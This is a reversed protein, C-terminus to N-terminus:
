PFVIITIPTETLLADALGLSAGGLGNMGTISAATITIVTTSTRIAQIISFGVTDVISNAAGIFIQTKNATFVAGGATLTYLGASTRASTITQGLLNQGTTVTPANTGTQTLTARYVKYGQGLGQVFATTALATTNTNAAATAATCNTLIGSAPTGLAPAVFTKNAMTQAKTKFTFEDDVNAFDPLTLTAAGVTQAALSVTVVQATADATTVKLSGSTKGKINVYGTNTKGSATEIYPTTAGSALIPEAVTVATGDDSISSDVLNGSADAKTIVNQTATITGIVGNVQPPVLGASGECFGVSISSSAAKIWIENVNVGKVFPMQAYPSIIEYSTPATSGFGIYLDIATDHNIIYGDNGAVPNNVIDSFGASALYSALTAFTSNVTFSTPFLTNAM